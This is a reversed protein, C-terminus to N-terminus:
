CELRESMREHAGCVSAIAHIEIRINTDRDKGIRASVERSGFCSKGSRKSTTDVDTRVISNIHSHNLDVVIRCSQKIARLVIEPNTYPYHNVSRSKLENYSQITKTSLILLIPDPNVSYIM